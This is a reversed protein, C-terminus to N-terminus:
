EKKPPETTDEVAKLFRNASLRVFTIGMEHIQKKLWEYDDNALALPEGPKTDMCAGIIDETRKSVEFPVNGKNQAAWLGLYVRCFQRVLESVGYVGKENDVTIELPKRDVDLIHDPNKIYIM